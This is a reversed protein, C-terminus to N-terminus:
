YKEDDRLLYGGQQISKDVIFVRHTSTVWPAPPLEAVEVKSKNKKLFGLVRKKSKPPKADGGNRKSQKTPICIM